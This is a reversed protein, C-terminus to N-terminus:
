VAKKSQNAIDADTKVAFFAKSHRCWEVTAELGEEDTPNWDLNANRLIQQRRELIRCSRSSDIPDCEREISLAYARVHPINGHPGVIILACHRPLAHWVTAIQLDIQRFIDAVTPSLRTPPLPHTTVALNEKIANITDQHGFHRELARLQTFIVQHNPQSLLKVTHSTADADTMVAVCDSDSAALQRCADSRDVVASRIHKRSMVELINEQKDGMSSTGFLPGNTVKLLFLKMATRADVESDHSGQQIEEKLYKQALYRLSNKHGEQQTHPFLIATDAIKPHFMKLSHLDNELSHGVLVTNPGIIGGRILKEQVDALTTTVSCLMEETIGSYRTNYDTIPREPKVFSDYVVNFTKDVVTIKALELGAATSCMECDIGLVENGSPANEPVRAYGVSDDLPYLNEAMESRSLLFNSLNEATTNVSGWAISIAADEDEDLEKATEQEEPVASAAPVSKAALHAVVAGVSTASAQASLESIGKKIHMQRLSMQHRMLANVGDYIRDRSGPTKLDRKSFISSELTPCLAEKAALHYYDLQLSNM